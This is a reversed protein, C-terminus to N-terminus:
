RSAPSALLYLDLTGFDVYDLQVADPEVRGIWLILDERRAEPVVVWVRDSEELVARLAVESWESSGQQLYAVEIREDPLYYRLPRRMNDWALLVSDTAHGQAVVHAAVGRWNDRQFDPDTYLRISGLLSTVLIITSLAVALWRPRMSAAAAALLLFFTVSSPLLYREHWVPRWVHSIVYAALPPGFTLLALLLTAAAGGYPRKGEAPQRWFQWLGLGLLALAVAAFLTNLERPFPGLFDFFLVAVSELGPKRLWDLSIRDDFIAVVALAALMGVQAGLWAFSIRFKNRLALWVGLLALWLVVMAHLAVTVTVCLPFAWSAWRTRRDEVLLMTWLSLLSGLVVMEYQAAEQSYFVQRPWILLFASALLGAWRGGLAAGVRYMTAVAVTGAAVSPWRLGFANPILVVWPRLVFEYAWHRAHGKLYALDPPLSWLHIAQLYSIVEDLWLSQGDLRHIYLGYAALVLVGAVLQAPLRRIGSSLPDNSKVVTSDSNL